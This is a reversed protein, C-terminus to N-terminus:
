GFIDDAAKDLLDDRRIDNLYAQHVALSSHGLLEMTVMPNNIKDIAMRAFTHRAIHSTLPKKIGAMIGLVKLYKNVATTCVEKHKLRARDNHFASLTKSPKWTFFPFLRNHKGAYKNIILQAQPILKITQIKDTKDAKYEYRGNEFDKAYAQLLDGVRVGRLYVQLLFLDRTATLMEGDLLELKALADLETSNLKQKVSKNQVVKVAKVERTVGKSSYRLILGRILKVKRMITSGMNGNAEMDSIMKSFWKEDVQDIPIDKNETQRQLAKIKDYYGSKFEKEMRALELEMADNLSLMNAPKFIDSINKSGEKVDYLEREAKAFSESLYSNIRHSNQAKTKLRNNKIDWDEFKCRAIVKRKVKGDIIYQLVIPHCM